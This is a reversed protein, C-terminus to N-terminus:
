RSSTLRGAMRSLPVTINPLYIQLVAGLSKASKLGAHHISDTRNSRIEIMRAFRVVVNAVYPIVTAFHNHEGSGFVDRGMFFEEDRVIRVNCDDLITKSEGTCTGLARRPSATSRATCHSWTFKVSGPRPKQLTKNLTKPSMDKSVGVECEFYTSNKEADENETDKKKREALNMVRFGIM